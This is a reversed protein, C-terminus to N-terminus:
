RSKVFYEEIGRRIAYALRERYRSSQLLNKEKLNSLTGVEVLIVTSVTNKLVPDDGPKARRNDLGMYEAFQKQILEALFKSSTEDKRYLVQPGYYVPNDSYGTYLILLIDPNIKELHVPLTDDLLVLEANIKGKELQEMLKRGIDLVIGENGSDVVVLIDADGAVSTVPLAIGYQLLFGTGLLALVLIVVFLRFFSKRITILFVQPMTDEGKICVVQRV